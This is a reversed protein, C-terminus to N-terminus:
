NQYCYKLAVACDRSLAQLKCIDVLRAEVAAALARSRRDTSAVSALVYRHSTAAGHQRRRCAPPSSRSASPRGARTTWSSASTSARTTPAPTASASAATRRWTSRRAAARSHARRATWRCRQPLVLLVRRVDHKECLVGSSM